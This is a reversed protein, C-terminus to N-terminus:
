APASRHRRSHLFTAKFSRTDTSVKGEKWSGGAWSRRGDAGVSGILAKSQLHEPLESADISIRISKHLPVDPTHVTYLPSYGYAPRPKTQMRLLISEYLAGRPIASWLGEGGYRTTATGACRSARPGTKTRM